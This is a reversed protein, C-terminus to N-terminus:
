PQAEGIGGSAASACTAFDSFTLRHTINNCLSESTKQLWDPVEAVEQGAKAGETSKRGHSSM